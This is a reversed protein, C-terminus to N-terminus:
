MSVRPAVCQLCLDSKQCSKLPWELKECLEGECMGKMMMIIVGSNENIVILDRWEGCDVDCSSSLWHLGRGVCSLWFCHVLLRVVVCCRVSVM